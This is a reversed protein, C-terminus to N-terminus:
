YRSSNSSSTFDDPLNDHPNKKLYKKLRKPKVETNKSETRISDKNQSDFNQYCPQNECNNNNVVYKLHDNSISLNINTINNISYNKNIKKQSNKERPPQTIMEFKGTSFDNKSQDLDYQQLKMGAKQPTFGRIKSKNSIYSKRSTSEISESNVKRKFKPKKELTANLSNMKNAYKQMEYDLCNKDLESNKVTNQPNFLKDTNRDYNMSNESILLSDNPLKNFDMTNKQVQNTLPKRRSSKSLTQIEYSRQNNTTIHNEEDEPYIPRLVSEDFNDLDDIKQIKDNKVKENEVSSNKDNTEPKSKNNESMSVDESSNKNAPVVRNTKKKRCCFFTSKKEDKEPNSLDSSM